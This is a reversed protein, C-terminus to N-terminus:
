GGGGTDGGARVAPPEGNPERGPTPDGQAGPDATPRGGLDLGAPPHAPALFEEGQPWMPCIPKFACMRCDAHPDPDFSEAAAGDLLALLRQEVQTAHDPGPHQSVRTFRGHKVRAPYVLQMEVPHGLAALEHDRLAALYYIALQLSREAEEDTAPNRATKYDLLVIGGEPGPDVRDIRGRVLHGGVEMEFGVEFRLARRAADAESTHWLELMGMGDRWYQYAIAKSPFWAPNFRARYAAKLDEPENAIDGKAALEFVTHMLRGFAMQYSSRDDLGAVSGFFYRLHCDEYTGIRSYSTRLRGEAAIPEPDVTYDRRWWWTAPDVGPIAALTAAAALREAAPRDRDGAVRRLAGAAELSGLPTPDPAPPDAPLELGLERLFRSPEGRGDVRSATFVVRDRARSAALTFRRREADLIANARAVPGPDDDLRWAEFLGQPRTTMPLSGELCGAVVVLDFEQGKAANVSLVAVADTRTMAPPLWPDSAFDAREVVDLYTRMSAGPRGDVFLGLARSFATLADLQRQTDADTPDVEARLILEAFAPASRWVEWFCADADLEAVWGEARELLDCLGEVRVVLGPDLVLASRARTPPGAGGGEGEPPEAGEDTEASEITEAGGEVTEAGEGVVDAVTGAAKTTEAAEGTGTGEPVEAGEGVPPPEATDPAQEPLPPPVARARVHDALSRDALLAARRLARLEGPDLGGLPSTLLSPLLEDARTPDLALRFLDLVNGVIPEAVLQREGAGLRYPVGFRELARRTPGSLRRTSPLLVAMRGYPVGDREHAVRLLRANAEAEEAPGPHRAAEVTTTGGGTLAVSPGPGAAQLRRVADLGPGGLRRSRELVVVSAGLRSAWAALAGPTAGRFADISGAPDGALIARAGGDALLTLLRLQAPDLEQAEDVLITRVQAVTAALIDPRDELLDGAQVVLGAQDVSDQLALHEGYLTLFAAVAVWTPRDESGARELLAEPDVLRRECALVFEALEDTFARTDVLPALPGWDIAAQDLTLLSRVLAWQEPGSLPRPEGRYDLLDAHSTVLGHAFAYWTVCALEGGSAGDLAGLLRETSAVAAQRSSTLFRAAGGPREQLHHMTAELLATKGSGPGGLVVVNGPPLMAALEGPLGDALTLPGTPSRNTTPVSPRNM